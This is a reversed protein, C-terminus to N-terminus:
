ISRKVALNEPLSWPFGKKGDRSFELADISESQKTLPGLHSPTLHSVVWANVEGNECGVVLIGDCSLALARIEADTEFLQTVVHSALDVRLVKGDQM